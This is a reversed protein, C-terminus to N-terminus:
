GAKKFSSKKAPGDAKNIWLALIIAAKRAAEPNRDMLDLIRNKLVLLEAASAKLGEIRLKNPTTM